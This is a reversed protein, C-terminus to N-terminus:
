TFATFAFVKGPGSCPKQTIRALIKPVGIQPTICALIKPVGIFASIVGIFASFALFDPSTRNNPIKM